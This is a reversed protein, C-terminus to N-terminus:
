KANLARKMYFLSFEPNPASSKYNRHPILSAWIISWELLIDKWMKRKMTVETNANRNASSEDM